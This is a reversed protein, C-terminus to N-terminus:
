PQAEPKPSEAEWELLVSWRGHHFGEFQSILKAGSPIPENKPWFQFYRDPESM